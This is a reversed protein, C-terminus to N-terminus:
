INYNVALSYDDVGVRTYTITGNTPTYTWVGAGNDSWEDSIEQAITATTFDAATPTKWLGTQLLSDASVMEIASHAMGAVADINAIHANDAVSNFAPVAIGALAGMIAVVTILELLTFGEINKMM